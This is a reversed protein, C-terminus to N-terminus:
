TMLWMPPTLPTADRDNSTSLIVVAKERQRKCGNQEWTTSMDLPVPSGCGM